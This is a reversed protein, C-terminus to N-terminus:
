GEKEAKIIDGFGLMKMGIEFSDTLELWKFFIELDINKYGNEVKSVGSQTYNLQHALEEQSYGVRQRCFKLVEGARRTIM